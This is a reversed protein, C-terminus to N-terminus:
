GMADAPKKGGIISDKGGRELRRIASRDRSKKFLSRITSKLLPHVTEGAIEALPGLVFNRKHLEPHPVTLRPTKLVIEGALLIDLDILRPGHVVGITRGMEKEIKKLRRLLELPRLSTSVELAQNLFWPQNTMGVPQTRYLSSARVIRIGNQGLLRRARALNNRPEGLNSGLGLHYRM